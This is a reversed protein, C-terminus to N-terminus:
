CHRTRCERETCACVSGTVACCSVGCLSAEWWQRDAPWYVLVKRGSCSDTITDPRLQVGGVPAEVAAQQQQQLLKASAGGKKSHSSSNSNTHRARKGLTASGPSHVAAAFSGGCTAASRSGSVTTPTSFSCVLCSLCRHILCPASLSSHCLGCNSQM